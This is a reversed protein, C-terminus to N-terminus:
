MASVFTRGMPIGHPSPMLHLPHSAGFVYAAHRSELLSLGLQGPDLRMIM